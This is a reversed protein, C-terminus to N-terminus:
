KSVIVKGTIIQTDTQMQILYIGDGMLEFDMSKENNTYKTQLVQGLSNLIQIQRTTSPFIITFKGTTPNPYVTIGATHLKLDNIGSVSHFYAYSSDGSSITGDTNWGKDVMTKQFNNADYTYTNQWSNV